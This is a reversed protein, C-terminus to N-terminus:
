RGAQTSWSSSQEVKEAMTSLESSLVKCTDYLENLKEYEQESM